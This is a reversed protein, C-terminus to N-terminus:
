SKLEFEFTRLNYDFSELNYTREHFVANNDKDISLFTSCRTGYNPSKIFISSLMREKELGIGTDPLKEDNPRFEDFLSDLIKEPNLNNQNIEVGVKEKARTLKPWPTDLLANSLGYIGSGLMTIKKEQNSYYWLDEQNGLVLNFGNYAHSITDINELYQKPKHDNLLFDTVLKGRTPANQKINRLDRYNTLLSVRGSKTVGMWTGHAELDKGALLETSEWFDAPKTPRQYFEDRNAAIILKYDPHHKYSFVVLCM